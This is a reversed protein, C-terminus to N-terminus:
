GHGRGSRGNSGAVAANTRSPLILQQPGVLPGSGGARGERPCHRCPPGTLDWCGIDNALDNALHAASLGTRAVLDDVWGSLPSITKSGFRRRNVIDSAIGAARARLAKLLLPARADDFGSTLGWDQSSRTMAGSRVMMAEAEDEAPRRGHQHGIALGAKERGKDVPM